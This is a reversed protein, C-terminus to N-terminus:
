SNPKSSSRRSKTAPPQESAAGAPRRSGLPLAVEFIARQWGTIIATTVDPPLSILGEVTLPVPGDVNELDWSRLGWKLLLELGPRLEEPDGRTPTPLEALDKWLTLPVAVNVEVTAGEYASNGFELTVRREVLFGM